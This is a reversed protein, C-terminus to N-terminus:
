IECPLAVGSFLLPGPFHWHILLRAKPLFHMVLNEFMELPSCRESRHSLCIAGTRALIQPRRCPGRTMLTLILSGVVVLSLSLSCRPDSLQPDGLDHCSEQILSISPLMTPNLTQTQTIPMAHHNPQRSNAWHQRVQVCLSRRRHYLRRSRLHHTTQFIM